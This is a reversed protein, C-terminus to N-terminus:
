SPSDNPSAWLPPKADDPAEVPPPLKWPAREGLPPPIPDPPGRPPAGPPPPDLRHEPARGRRVRAHGAHRGAGDGVLRLRALAGADDDPHGADADPDARQHVHER